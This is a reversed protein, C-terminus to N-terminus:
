QKRRHYSTYRQTNMSGSFGFGPRDGAGPSFLPPCQKNLKKPPVVGLCEAVEGMAATLPRCQLGPPGCPQFTPGLWHLWPDGLGLKSLFSLPKSFFLGWVIPATRM